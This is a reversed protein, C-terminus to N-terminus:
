HAASQRALATAEGGEVFDLTNTIASSDELLNELDEYSNLRIQDAAPMTILGSRKLVSLSRCVTEVTLGLYDAIDRRGMPLTFLKPEGEYDQQARALKILLTAIREVATMRGLMFLHEQVAALQDALIKVLHIRTEPNSALLEEVRRRPYKELIIPTVAEATYAHREWDTWGFHEGASHFSTIQRRGDASIKCIRVLGSVVKYSCPAEDGELYITCDKAVNVIAAIQTLPSGECRGEPKRHVTVHASTGQLLNTSRRIQAMPQIVAHM